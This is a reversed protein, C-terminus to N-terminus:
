MTDGCPLHLTSRGHQSSSHGAKGEVRVKVRLKFWVFARTAEWSLESTGAM